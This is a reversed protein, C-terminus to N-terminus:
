GAKGWHFLKGEITGTNSKVENALYSCTTIFQLRHSALHALSRPLSRLRLWNIKVGPRHRKLDCLGYGDGPQRRAAVARPSTVNM